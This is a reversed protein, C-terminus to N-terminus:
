PVPTSLRSQSARVTGGYTGLNIIKGNPSPEQGVPSAPDGADICPSTTEDHLWTGTAPEWRGGQSQLHYDGTVWIASPDDPSTTVGPDDRDVWRGLGAFLPDAALNGVGTWGGAVSSYRISPLVDGESQIEKPWNGWLISNVVTVSSDVLSLGAGFQGAHNDAVTCNLFTAESDTCLIAAANWDTARNGVILCHSITPSAGTCRIAGVSRNMGGTIVLGTLLCNADENHTFDVVPGKGGGDIVPWPAQNPDNPDFGTLHIQKGQFDITERYTGAHVVITAGNLAVGVAERITDFPHERTGDELPDGVGSDDPGPDAPADDDVHITNLVAIFNARIDCDYELVFSLPNLMSCVTGSFDSFVFGPDAKAEVVVDTRGEYVFDGEGPSIISGGPGASLTLHVEARDHLIEIGPNNAIIQPIHTGYAEEELPVSRVDLFRLSRLSLLPSIDSVLTDEMNLIQLNTLGSLPSIDTIDNDQIDLNRLNTLGGLPSLDTFSNEMISLDHLNKAYELGALSTVDSNSCSLNTLALMDSPTPDKIWLTQEVAAKLAADAFHVPEEAWATKLLVGSLALVIPLIKM